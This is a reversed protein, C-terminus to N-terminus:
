ANDFYMYRIEENMGDFDIRCLNCISIIRYNLPSKGNKDSGKLGYQLFTYPCISLFLIFHFLIKITYTVLRM